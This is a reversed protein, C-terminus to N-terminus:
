FRYFLALVRRHFTGNIGIKIKLVCLEWAAVLFTNFCTVLAEDVKKFLNQTEAM